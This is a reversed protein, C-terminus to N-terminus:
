AELVRVGETVYDPSRRSLRNRAIRMPIDSVAASAESPSLGMINTYAMMERPGIMTLFSSAGSSVLIQARSRKAKAFQARVRALTLRQQRSNLINSFNFEVPIDARMGFLSSPHMGPRDADFYVMDIRKDRFALSGIQGNLCNVAVLDYNSRVKPIARLLAQRNEFALDIRSLANIGQESFKSLVERKKDEPMRADLTVGVCSFGMEAALNAMKATADPNQNAPKLHLDAMCKM